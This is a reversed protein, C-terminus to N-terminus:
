HYVWLPMGWNICESGKIGTVGKEKGRISEQLNLAKGPKNAKEPKGEKEKFLNSYKRSLRLQKLNTNTIASGRWKHKFGEGEFNLPICLLFDLEDGQVSCTNSYDQTELSM